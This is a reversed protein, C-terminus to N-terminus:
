RRLLYEIISTNVNELYSNFLLVLASLFNIEVPINTHYLSESIAPHDRPGNWGGTCHTGPREQLYLPQSTTNVM